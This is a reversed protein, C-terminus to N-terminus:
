ANKWFQFWNIFRQFLSLNSKALVLEMNGSCNVIEKQVEKNKEVKRSKISVFNFNPNESNKDPLNELEKKIIDQKSEQLFTNNPSTKRRKKKKLVDEKSPTTHSSKPFMKEIIFLKKKNEPKTKINKKDAIEFFENGPSKLSMEESISEIESPKSAIALTNLAVDKFKSKSVPFKTEIDLPKLAITLTKSAVDKFKSKAVPFKTGIDPPKSAITPTNSAVDM